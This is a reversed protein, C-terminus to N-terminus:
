ETEQDDPRLLACLDATTRVDGLRDAEAASTTAAVVPSLAIVLRAATASAERAARSALRPAGLEAALKATIAAALLDLAVDTPTSM